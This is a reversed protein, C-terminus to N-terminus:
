INIESYWPMLIEKMKTAMYAVGRGFDMSGNDEIAYEGNEASLRLQNLKAIIDVATSWTTSADLLATDSYIHGQCDRCRYRVWEDNLRLDGSRNSHRCSVRDIVNWLMRQLDSDDNAM